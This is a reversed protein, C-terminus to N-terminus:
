YMGAPYGLPRYHPFKLYSWPEVAEGLYEDYRAPDLNDAVIVGNGDVIRIGGEYHEWTGNPGILGLFLSPFAGFTRAEEDFHELLGKF